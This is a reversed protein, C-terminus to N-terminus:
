NIKRFSQVGGTGDNEVLYVIYKLGAARSNRCATEYDEHNEFVIRIQATGNRSESAPLFIVKAPIEQGEPGEPATIM